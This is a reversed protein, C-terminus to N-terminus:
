ALEIGRVGGGCVREDPLEGAFLSRRRDDDAVVRVGGIDGITDDVDPVSTDARLRRRHASVLLLDDERAAAPEPQWLIEQVQASNRVARARADLVPPDHDRRESM